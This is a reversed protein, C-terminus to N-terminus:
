SPSQLPPHHGNWFGFCDVVGTGNKGREERRVALGVSDRCERHIRRISETSETSTGRHCLDIASDM